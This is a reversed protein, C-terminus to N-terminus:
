GREGRKPVRLLEERINYKDRDRKVGVISCRDVWMTCKDIRHEIVVCERVRVIETPLSKKM